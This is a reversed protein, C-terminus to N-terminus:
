WSIRRQAARVDQPLPEDPWGRSLFDEEIWDLWAHHGRTECISHSAEAFRRSGVGSV